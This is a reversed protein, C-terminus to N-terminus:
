WNIGAIQFRCGLLYAVAEHDVALLGIDRQGILRLQEQDVGLLLACGLAEDDGASVGPRFTPSRMLM